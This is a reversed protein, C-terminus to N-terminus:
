KKDPATLRRLERFGNRWVAGVSNTGITYRGALATNLRETGSM